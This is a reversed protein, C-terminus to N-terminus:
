DESRAADYAKLRRKCRKIVEPPTRRTKKAFVEAVLVADDDLRHIIRWTKNQDVIRLEYCRRGIMPMPRSHPLSLKEGQQLMRLLFGAERRAERSM